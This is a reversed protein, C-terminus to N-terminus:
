LNVFLAFKLYYYFNNVSDKISLTESFAADECHLLCWEFTQRAAQCCLLATLQEMFPRSCPCCCTAPQWPLKLLLPKSVYMILEIKVRFKMPPPCIKVLPMKAYILYFFLWNIIKFIRDDLTVCPTKFFVVKKCMNKLGSWLDIAPGNLAFMTFKVSWWLFYFNM